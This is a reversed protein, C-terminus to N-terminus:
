NEQLEIMTPSGANLMALHETESMGETAAKIADIYDGKSKCGALSIDHYAALTELQAKNLAELAKNFASDDSPTAPAPEPAEAEGIPEFYGSAIAQEAVAEDEVCVIPHEKTASVIGTYSLGKTLKIRYM